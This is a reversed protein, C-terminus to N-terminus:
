GHHSLSIFVSHPIVQQGSVRVTMYIYVQSTGVEAAARVTMTCEENVATYCDQM